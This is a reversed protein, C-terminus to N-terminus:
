SDADENKDQHKRQNHITAQGHLSNIPSDLEKMNEEHERNIERWDFVFLPIITVMLALWSIGLIMKPWLSEADGTIMQYVLMGLTGVAFIGLGWWSRKEYPKRRNARDHMRELRRMHYDWMYDDM